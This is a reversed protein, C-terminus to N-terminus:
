LKTIQMNAIVRGIIKFDECDTEMKPFLPNDSHLFIEKTKPEIFLRKVYVEDCLYVVFIKGDKPTIDSKDIFIVDEDEITPSMSNGTVRIADMADSSKNPMMDPSLSIYSPKCNGNTCGYGASAHIDKYYPISISKNLMSTITAIDKLTIDGDVQLMDGTGDELWEYNFGYKNVLVLIDKPKMVLTTKQEWAKIKGDTCGIIDALGQQSVGIVKRVMKIRDSLDQM